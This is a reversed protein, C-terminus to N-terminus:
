EVLRVVYTGGLQSGKRRSGQVWAGVYEACWAQNGGNNYEGTRKLFFAGFGVVRQNSGVPTGGDNIPCAVIRRGNGTNRTVYQAYTTSVNDTDQDIRDHLSDLQSQKAGGTFDV